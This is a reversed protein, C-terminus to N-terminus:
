DSIHYLISLEIRANRARGAPTANDAIPDAGGKGDVTIRKPEIGRSVLAWYVANAQALSLASLEGPKGQDDTYASLQLPYTPYRAILDKVADLMKAGGPQLVADHGTFLGGLVLVLRQLDKDRELDSSCM